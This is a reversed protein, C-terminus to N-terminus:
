SALYETRMDCLTVSFGEYLEDSLHRKAAALKKELAAFKEAADPEDPQPLSNIEAELRRLDFDNLEDTYDETVPAPWTSKINHILEFLTEPFCHQLQLRDKANKLALLRNQPYMADMDHQLERIEGQQGAFLKTFSGYLWAGLVRQAFTAQDITITGAADGPVATPQAGATSTHDDQINTSKQETGLIKRWTREDDALEYRDCWTDDLVGEEPLDDFVPFDASIPLQYDAGRGTEIEADELINHIERNVRSESKASFWCFLSKAKAKILYAFEIM